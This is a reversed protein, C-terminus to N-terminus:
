RWSEVGGIYDDYNLEDELMKKTFQGTDVKNLHTNNWYLQPVTRHGNERLFAKKDLEYSINVEKYDYGWNELKAKMMHCFPCDNQTFLTLKISAFM